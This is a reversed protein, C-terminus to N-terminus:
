LFDKPNLESIEEIINGDEDYWLVLWAYENDIHDQLTYSGELEGDMVECILTEMFTEFWSDEEWESDDIENLDLVCDKSWDIVNDEEIWYEVDNLEEDEDVGSAERNVYIGIKTGNLKDIFERRMVILKKM